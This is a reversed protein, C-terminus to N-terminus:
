HELPPGGPIARLMEFHSKFYPWHRVTKDESVTAITKGDALFFADMVPASHGRLVAVEAADRVRWLRASEEGSATVVYASDDSFRVLKVPSARGDLEFLRKGSSVEFISTSGNLPKAVLKHDPSFHWQAEDILTPANSQATMQYRTGEAFTVEVKGTDSVSLSTVPSRDERFATSHFPAVAQAEWAQRYYTDGAVDDGLGYVVHDDPGFVLRDFLFTTKPFRQSSGSAVNLLQIDDHGTTAVIHACRSNVAVRTIEGELHGVKRTSGEPISIAFVDGEQTGAAACRGGSSVTIASIDGDVTASTIRKGDPVDWIDIQQDQPSTALYRSRGEVLTGDMGDPAPIVFPPRSGTKIQLGGEVVEYEFKPDTDEIYRLIKQFGVAPMQWQAVPLTRASLDRLFLHRAGDYTALYRGNSSLGLAQAMEPQALISKFDEPAQARVLAAGGAEWSVVLGSHDPLAVAELLPSKSEVELLNRGDALSLLTATKKDKSILAVVARDSSLHARGNSSRSFRVSGTTLDRVEILNSDYEYVAANLSAIITPTFEQGVSSPTTIEGHKTWEAATSIEWSQLTDTQSKFNYGKLVLLNGDRFVSNSTYLYEEMKESFVAAPARPADIKVVRSDSDRYLFAYKGEDDVLVSGSSKDDLKSVFSGDTARRISLSGVEEAIVYDRAFAKPLCICGVDHTSRDRLNLISFGPRLALGDDGAPAYAVRQGDDSIAANGFTKQSFIIEGSHTDAIEVGSFARIGIHQGARDFQIDPFSEGISTTFHARRTRDATNWVEMTGDSDLIAVLRGDASFAGFDPSIETGFPSFSGTEMNVSSFGNGGYPSVLARKGDVSVALLRSSRSMRVVSLEDGTVSDVIRISDLFTDILRTGNAAFRPHEPSPARGRRVFDLEGTVSRWRFVDAANNIGWLYRADDSFSWSVLTNIQEPAVNKPRDVFLVQYLLSEAEAVYLRQDTPSAPLTQILLSRASDTDGSRIRQKAQEILSRAANLQAQYASNAASEHLGLIWWAVIAVPTAYVSFKIPEANNLLWTLVGSYVTSSRDDHPVPEEREVLLPIWYRAMFDDTPGQADQFYGSHGFRYYRNVYNRSLAGNFGLRGAMGTLLVLWQSLLLVNDRTGCENVLRKIVSGLLDNWPFTSKLVSGSLIITDLKGFSENTLGWLTWGVIHTGFSHSVIDVRDWRPDLLARRLYSSFRRRVLWRLMPVLFALVSFYGYKYHVVEITGGAQRGVLRGLREQWQGFTRIGHVTIVLHRTEQSANESKM